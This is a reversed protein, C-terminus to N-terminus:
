CCTTTHLCCACAVRAAWHARGVQFKKDQVGYNRRTNERKVEHSTVAIQKLQEDTIRCAPRLACPSSRRADRPGAGQQLRWTRGALPMMIILTAASPLRGGGGRRPQECRPVDFEGEAPAELLEQHARSRKRAKKAPKNTTDGDTRPRKRGGPASSGRASPRPRAKPQGVPAKNRPAMSPAVGVRM